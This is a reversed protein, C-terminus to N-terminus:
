VVERELETVRSLQGTRQDLELDLVERAHIGVPHIRAEMVRVRDERLAQLGNAPGAFLLNRLLFLLHQLLLSALGSTTLQLVATDYIFDHRPHVLGRSSLHDM